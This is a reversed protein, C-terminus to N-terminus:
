KLLLITGKFLLHSAFQPLNNKIATDSSLCINTITIAIHFNAYTYRENNSGSM